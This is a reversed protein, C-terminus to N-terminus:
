LCETKKREEQQNRTRISHDPTLWTRHNLWKKSPNSLGVRLLSLQIGWTRKPILDRFPLPKSAIRELKQVDQPSKKSKESNWSQWVQDHGDPVDLKLVL